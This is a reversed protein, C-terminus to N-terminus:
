GRGRENKTRERRKAEEFSNNSEATEGIRFEEVREWAEENV